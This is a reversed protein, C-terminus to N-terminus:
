GIISSVYPSLCWSSALVSNGKELVIGTLSYILQEDSLEHNQHQLECFDICDHALKFCLPIFSQISGPDMIPLYPSVCQEVVLHLACIISKCVINSYLRM